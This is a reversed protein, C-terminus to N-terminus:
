PADTWTASTLTFYVSDFWDDGIRITRAARGTEEFGLNELLRISGTNRPDVDATIHDLGRTTFGHDIVATVAERAIGQGWTDRHFIFGIEPSQWFGAKGIVRGDLLAVFEEGAGPPLSMMAAVFARNEAPDTHPATSWFQMAVPDSFVEYLPDADGPEPPRLTLRSTTLITMRFRRDSSFSLALNPIQPARDM